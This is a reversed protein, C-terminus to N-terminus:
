KIKIDHRGSVDVKGKFNLDMDIEGIHKGKSNLMEFRGHQTDLSYYIKETSDYYIKRGPNKNAISKSVKEWGNNLAVEEGKARVIPVRENAPLKSIDQEFKAAGSLNSNNSLSGNNSGKNKSAELVKSDLEDLSNGDVKVKGIGAIEVETQKSPKLGSLVNDLGLLGKAISNVFSVRELTDLEKGTIYGTGTVFEGLRKLQGYVPLYNTGSSIIELFIQKSKVEAATM